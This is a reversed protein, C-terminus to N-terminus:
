SSVESRLDQIYHELDDPAVRRSRGIRVSRLEGATVAREVTRPSVQLRQAVEHVTLLLPTVPGDDAQEDDDARTTAQQRSLASVLSALVPPLPCGDQKCRREYLQIARVLQAQTAVDLVVVFSAMM